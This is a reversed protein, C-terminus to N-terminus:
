TSSRLVSVRQACATGLDLLPRSAAAIDVIELAAPSFGM